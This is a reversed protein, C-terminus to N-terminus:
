KKPQSVGTDTENWSNDPDFTTIAAALTTTDQGFDKEYIVGQQNVMFTMIGSVGYKAPYALLGHGLIMKGHVRYDYAGGNAHAGQGLLMKYYYGHYPKIKGDVPTYGQQVAEAVLPGMPSMAEREKAPWYLGNKTGPDSRLRSAFAYVNDGNLDRVAYENQADVYTNMVNMVSLENQGIRRDLIEQKGASVDFHWRNGQKVLPIPFPWKENGLILIKEGSGKAELGHHEQFLALIRERDLRDAIDDGSSVLDKADTGFISILAQTDGKKVGKILAEVAKDPSDFMEGDGTTEGASVWGSLGVVMLMLLGANLLYKLVRFGNNECFVM